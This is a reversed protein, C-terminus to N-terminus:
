SIGQELLRVIGCFAEAPSYDHSSCLTSSQKRKKEKKKKKQTHIKLSAQDMSYFPKGLPNKCDNIFLISGM